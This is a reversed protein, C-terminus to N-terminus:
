VVLKANARRKIMRDVACSTVFRLDLDELKRAREKLMTFTKDDLALYGLAETCAWVLEWNTQSELMIARLAEVAIARLHHHPALYAAKQSLEWAASMRDEPRACNDKLLDVLLAIESQYPGESLNALAPRGSLELM